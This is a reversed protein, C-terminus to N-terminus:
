NLIGTYKGKDAQIISIGMNLTTSKLDKSKARTVNSTWPKPKEEM